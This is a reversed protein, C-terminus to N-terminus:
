ESGRGWLWNAFRSLLPHTLKWPRRQLAREDPAGPTRHLDSDEDPSGVQGTLRGHTGRQQCAGQRPIRKFVSPVPLM